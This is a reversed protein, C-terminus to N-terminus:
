TKLKIHTNTPLVPEVAMMMVMQMTLPVFVVLFIRRWMMILVMKLMTMIVVMVMLMIMMLGNNDDYKQTQRQGIAWWGDRGLLLLIHLFRMQAMNM